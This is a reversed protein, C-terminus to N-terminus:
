EWHRMTRVYPLSASEVRGRAQRDTIMPVEVGVPNITLIPDVGEGEPECEYRRVDALALVCRLATPGLTFNSAPVVQHDSILGLPLM